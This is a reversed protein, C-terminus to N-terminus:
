LSLILASVAELTLLLLVRRFRKGSTDQIIIYHYTVFKPFILAGDLIAGPSAMNQVGEMAISFRDLKYKNQPLELWPFWSLDTNFACNFATQNPEGSQATEPSLLAESFYGATKM